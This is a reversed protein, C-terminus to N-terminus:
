PTAEPPAFHAVVIAQLRASLRSFEVQSLTLAEAPPINQAVLIEVAEKTTAANWAADVATLSPPVPKVVQISTAERLARGLTLAFALDQATAETLLDLLASM